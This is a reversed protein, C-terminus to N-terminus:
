VVRSAVCNKGVFLLEEKGELRLTEWKIVENPLRVEGKPNLTREKFREKLGEIANEELTIPKIGKRKIILKLMQNNEKLTKMLDDLMETNM